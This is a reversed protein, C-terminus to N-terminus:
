INKLYKKLRTIKKSIAQHSVAKLRAIEVVTYGDFVFLTLIEKDEDSLKQLLSVLQENEIEDLWSMRRSPDTEAAKTSLRDHFKDMLPSNDDGASDSDDEYRQEPIPQTHNRYTREKKFTEWDFEYMSLIATEDMGAEIYERHLKEWVRDFKRKEFGYNFGM